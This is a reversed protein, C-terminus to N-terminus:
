DIEVAIYLLKATSTPTIVLKVTNATNFDGFSVNDVAIASSSDRISYIASNTYDPIITIFRKFYNGTITIPTTNLLIDGVYMNFTWTISGTPCYGAYEITFKHPSTMYNAPIINTGNLTPIGVITSLASNTTYGTSTAYFIGIDSNNEVIISCQTTGSTSYTTNIGTITKYIGTPVISYKISTDVITSDTSDITFGNPIKYYLGSASKTATIYTTGSGSVLKAIKKVSLTLTGNFDTTPLVSINSSASLQLVSSGTASISSITQGGIYITISGAATASYSITYSIQYIYGSTYSTGESLIGTGSTHTFGTAFSGSWGTNATWNVTLLESGLTYAYTSNEKILYKAAVNFIDTATGATLSLPTFNYLTRKKYGILNETTKTLKGNADTILRSDPLDSFFTDGSVAFGNECNLQEHAPISKLLIQYITPNNETSFNSISKQYFLTSTTQTESITYKQTAFCPYISSDSSDTTYGDRTIYFTGNTDDRTLNLLYKTYDGRLPRTETYITINDPVTKYYAHTCEITLIDSANAPVNNSSYAEYNTYGSADTTKYYAGSLTFREYNSNDNNSNSTYANIHYRNAVASSSTNDSSYSFGIDTKIWTGFANDQIIRLNYAGTDSKTFSQADSAINYKQTSETIVYKDGSRPDTGYWRIGDYDIATFIALSSDYYYTWNILDKSYAYSTISSSGSSKGPDSGITAIWIGYAYNLSGWIGSRESSGLNPDLTIEAIHSNGDKDIISLNSIRIWTVGDNTSKYLFGDRSILAWTGYTDNAIGSLHNNDGLESFTVGTYSSPTLIDTTRAVNSSDGIYCITSGDIACKSMGGTYVGSILTGDEGTVITSISSWASVKISGDENYTNINHLAYAIKEPAAIGHAGSTNGASNRGAGAIWAYSNLSSIYAFKISNWKWMSLSNSSQKLSTDVISNNWYDITFNMVGLTSQAVWCKKEIGNIFIRGHTIGTGGNSPILDTENNTPNFEFDTDIIELGAQVGTLQKVILEHPYKGTIDIGNCDAGDYVYRNDLNELTYPLNKIPGTKIGYYTDPNLKPLSM